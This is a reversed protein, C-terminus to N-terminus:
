TSAPPVDRRPSAVYLMGCAMVDVRREVPAGRGGAAGRGLLEGVHDDEVAGRLLRIREGHEVGVRRRVPVTLDDAPGVQGGASVLQVMEPPVRAAARE